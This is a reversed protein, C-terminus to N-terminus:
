QFLDAKAPRLPYPRLACQVELQLPRKLETGQQDLLPTQEWNWILFNGDVILKFEDIWSLSVRSSCCFKFIWDYNIIPAMISNNM